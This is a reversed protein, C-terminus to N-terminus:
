CTGGSKTIWCSTSSAGDIGSSARTGGQNISYTWAAINSGTKGTATITFTDRTPVTCVYDFKNTSTATAPTCPFGTYGVAPHDAYYQEAQTKMALLNSPAEQANGRKVHNTYSPVAVAALIGVIVVTIMLEILTFGRQLKM